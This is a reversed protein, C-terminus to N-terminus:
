FESDKCNKRIQDIILEEKKWDDLKVKTNTLFLDAIGIKNLPL